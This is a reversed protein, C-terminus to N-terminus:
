ISRAATVSVAMAAVKRESESEQESAGRFRAAVTM